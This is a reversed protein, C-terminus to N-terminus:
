VVPLQKIPKPYSKDIKYTMSLEMHPRVLNIFAPVSGAFIYLRNRSHISCKIGYKTTLATVLLQVDEPTFSNTSLHIGEKTWGGDGM